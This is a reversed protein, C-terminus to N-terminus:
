SEGRRLLRGAAPSFNFNGEHYIIKGNIIVYEIGTPYKEPEDFTSLDSIENEDFILIDAFYDEKLYGRKKIGITDAPLGTIKRIATPLPLMNRSLVYRSLFKPYAGYFLPSPKGFGMLITDTSISVEPDQLSSFLSRETFNDDPKAMSEFILVKGGEEILLDCAADLPHKKMEQAVSTICKGEYKKNKESTVAMIRACDWGMIKFLNLSWSNGEMHPWVTDGKEIDLLIQRRLDKDQLRKLILDKNGTLVWPPFFALLHTFGTTTPMVDMGVRVGSRRLKQLYLLHKRIVIDLPIPIPFYDSLTAAFRIFRRFHKGMWGMDPVWFIHSIQTQIDATRAIEVIEDIAQGLTNTYSRLHSTFVGEQKTLVKALNLLEWLNTQSGPFYQLGTSLGFAGVEMSASLFNKMKEIEDDYAYRNELGCVGIRLLSHPTLMAMNLPIERSSLFDFYESMTKWSIDEMSVRTFASLYDGIERIHGNLIPAMAIGCNGGVATTIGQAILPKLLECVDQKHITLDAHSHIDIIGPCVIKGAADITQSSLADTIKGIKVIKDQKIGIDGTTPIGGTGDYMKCNRIIIDYM